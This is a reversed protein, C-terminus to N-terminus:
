AIVRWVYRAADSSTREVSGVRKLRWLALYVLSPKLGIQAVLQEKTQPGGQRLATLVREDRDITEPTRPRGRRRPASAPTPGDSFDVIPDSM